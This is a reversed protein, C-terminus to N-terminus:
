KKIKLNEYINLLKSQENEWCLLQSSRDANEVWSNYIETESLMANIKSALEAPNAKTSITEGVKFENVLQEMEPLNSVLVPIRAQIYDFVKNPLAYRYNLGLDEELSVGLCCESTIRHLETPQIKGLFSIRHSLQLQEVRQKLEMEIDGSGIILLKFHPLYQMADILRELGRGLNLAGQYVITKSEISSINVKEKRTPLNRIVEFTVGYRKYIESAVGQSVTIGVDIGKILHRELWEWVRRTRPREVLEPVETFLEHSDYVLPKRKLLCVLRAALLTDLDNTHLINFKKYLLYFFAQLNFLAYFGKGKKLSVKLRFVRYGIPIWQPTTPLKRGVVLVDFGAIALTSASRNVRQDFVLDNTALLIVRKM